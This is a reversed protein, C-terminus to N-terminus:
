IAETSAMCRRHQATCSVPIGVTTASDTGSSPSPDIIPIDATCTRTLTLSKGLVANTFSGVEKAAYLEGLELQCIGLMERASANAVDKELIRGAFKSALEYDCQTILSQTKELLAPISPGNDTKQQPAAVESILAAKKSKTRTRGM